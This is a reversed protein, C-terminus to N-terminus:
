RDIEVHIIEGFPVAMDPMTAAWLTPYKPKEPFDGMLDTFYVLCQPEISREALFEFPPKFSTGGRGKITAKVPEGHELKQYDQVTADCQLFHVCSPQIVEIIANFEGIFAKFEEEGVSGSTDFVLAIECENKHEMSPLYVGQYIFRRNPHRWTTDHPVGGHQQLFRPLVERWNVKSETPDPFAEEFGGPLTGMQKAIKTASQVDSATRREVLVREQDSMASGDPNRPDLVGGMGGPDKGKNKACDPPLDNFVRETGWGRYKENLLGPKALRFGADKLQLNIVYDGAMNWKNADRGGRRTHHMNALHMTEHALVGKLDELPMADVWAPNYFMHRGDVAATTIGLM